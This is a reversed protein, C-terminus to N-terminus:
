SLVQGLVAVAGELHKQSLHYSLKFARSQKEVVEWGVMVQSGLPGAEGAVPGRGRSGVLRNKKGWTPKFPKRSGERGLQHTFDSSFVFPPLMKALM